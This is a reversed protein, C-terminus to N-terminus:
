VGCGLRQKGLSSEHRAPLDVVQVVVVRLLHIHLEDLGQSQTEWRGWAGEMSGGTFSWGKHVSAGGLVAVVNGGCVAREVALKISGPKFACPRFFVAREM